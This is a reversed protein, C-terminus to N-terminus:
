YSHVSYGQVQWFHDGCSSFVLSDRLACNGFCLVGVAFIGVDLVGNEYMCKMHVFLALDFSPIKSWFTLGFIGMSM